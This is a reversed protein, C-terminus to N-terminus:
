RSRTFLRSNSTPEYRTMWSSGFKWIWSPATPPRIRMASVVMSAREIQEFNPFFLCDPRQIVLDLGSVFLSRCMSPLYNAHEHNPIERRTVSRNIIATPPKDERMTVFNVCDLHVTTKKFDQKPIL